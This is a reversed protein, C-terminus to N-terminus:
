KLVLLALGVAIMAPKDVGEIEVTNEFKLLKRKEGKDTAELLRVHNRIRSGVQVPTMFRVRDLGYNFANQIGEMELVGIQEQFYSLLSLTLFGHAITKGNPMERVARDTDVHIWQHDKTIEAFADIQAQEIAFWESVGVEKGVLDDLTSITISM